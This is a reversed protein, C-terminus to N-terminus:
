TLVAIATSKPCGVVFIADEHVVAFMVVGCWACDRLLCEKRMLAFCYVFITFCQYTLCFSASCANLQQVVATVRLDLAGQLVTSNLM